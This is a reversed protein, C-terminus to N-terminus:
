KIIGYTKLNAIAIIISSKSVVEKDSKETNILNCVSLTEKSLSIVPYKSEISLLYESVLNYVINSSNLDKIIESEEKIAIASFFVEQNIGSLNWQNFENNLTLFNIIENKTM